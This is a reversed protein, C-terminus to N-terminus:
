SKSGSLSLPYVNLNPFKFYFFLDEIQCIVRKLRIIKLSRPMKLLIYNQPSYLSTNYSYLASKEKSIAM